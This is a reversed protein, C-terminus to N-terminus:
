RKPPTWHKSTRTLVMADKNKFRLTIYGGRQLLSVATPLGERHDHQGLLETIQSIQIDVGEPLVLVSRMIQESKEKPSTASNIKNIQEDNFGNSPDSSKGVLNTADITAAPLVKKPKRSSVKSAKKPESTIEVQSAEQVPQIRVPSSPGTDDKSNSQRVEPKDSVPVNFTDVGLEPMITRLDTVLRIISLNHLSQWSSEDDSERLALLAPVETATRFISKARHASRSIATKDNPLGASLALESIRLDTDPKAIASYILFKPLLVRADNGMVYERGGGTTEYTLVRGNCEVNAFRNEKPVYIQTSVIQPFLKLEPNVM